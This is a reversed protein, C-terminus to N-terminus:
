PAGLVILEDVVLQHALAGLDRTVFVATTQHLLSDISRRRLLLFQQHTRNGGVGFREHPIGEGVVHDLINEREFQRM